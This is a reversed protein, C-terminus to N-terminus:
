DVCEFAPMVQLADKSARALILQKFQNVPVAVDHKGVHLFGGASVVAYFAAKDPAVVINDVAGVVEGKDNIYRKV